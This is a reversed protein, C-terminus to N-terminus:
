VVLLLRTIIYAAGIVFIGILLYILYNKISKIADESTPQLLLMYWLYIIICVVIFTAISLVWNLITWLMSFSSQIDGSFLAEGVDVLGAENGDIVTDYSGYIFEVIESALLIVFIGIVSYLLISLAKKQIGDDPSFLLKLANSLVMLFLIWVAVLMFIKLFPYIIGAYLKGAMPAWEFDSWQAFNFIGSGWSGDAWVLSNVIYWASIMLMVWIMGYVVYKWASKTDEESESIMLKYFWVIAIIIGVFTMVPILINVWIDVIVDRITEGAEGGSSRSPNRPELYQNLNKNIQNTGDTNISTDLVAKFNNNGWQAMVLPSMICILFLGLFSIIISKIFIKM